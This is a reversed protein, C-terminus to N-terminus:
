LMTATALGLVAVANSGVLLEICVKNIFIAPSPQSPPKYMTISSLELLLTQCLEVQM